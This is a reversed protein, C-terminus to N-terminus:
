KMVKKLRMYDASRGASFLVMSVTIGKIFVLRWLLLMVRIWTM